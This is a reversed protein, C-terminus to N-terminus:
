EPGPPRKPAKPPPHLWRLHGRQIEEWIEHAELLAEDPDPYWARYRKRVPRWDRYSRFVSVKRVPSKRGIRPGILDNVLLDLVFGLVTTSNWERAYVGRMAVIVEYEFGDPGLATLM